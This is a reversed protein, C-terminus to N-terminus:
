KLTVRDPKSTVDMGGWCVPQRRLFHTGVMLFDHEKSSASICGTLLVPPPSLLLALNSVM